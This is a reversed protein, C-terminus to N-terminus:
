VAEVAKKERKRYFGRRFEAFTGERVAARIEEM